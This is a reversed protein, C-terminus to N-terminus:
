KVTIPHAKLWAQQRKELEEERALIERDLALDEPVASPKSGYRPADREDAGDLVKLAFASHIKLWKANSRAGRAATAWRPSGIYGPWGPATAVRHIDTPTAATQPSLNAIPGVLDARLFLLTSTEWAGGHLSIGDERKEDESTPPDDQSPEDPLDIGMLNVMRGDYTDRFYDGAQDLVRNHRPAGHGHVIFIWKFGQEGFETALDMFIARLTTSRIAYTGPAVFQRGIENAGGVGLPITPFLLVSWGPRAVILEALGEAYWENIYGDSFSPLHPGHQELIGGTLIVATRSRDLAAIQEANMEALKYIQASAPQAFTCMALAVLGLWSLRRM